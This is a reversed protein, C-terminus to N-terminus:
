EELAGKAILDDIEADGLGLLDRAIERTHEGLAPAPGAIPDGMSPTLMAPGELILEGLGPQTVPQPFRRAISHPNHVHDSPYCMVGAPVGAAQLTEMVAYDSRTATWASLHEDITDHAARRGEVTDYAPDAAWEPNGLAGKLAAWDADDRVSIVAWRESGECRYVGIPAGRQRRNGEPQVSGPELAEGIFKDGLLNIIAEVQAVEVHSGQGSTDRGLLAALAGVTLIRGVVHDPHIALSGPPMGGGPFNWLHSMGSAPRTNPGYGIWTSWPGKSGMLQSSAMVLRPNIQRLTEWDMGMDAMTGTSTNEILVDAWEVLRRLLALGEPVKANIGLSRKCRSSSVFSPSTMTGSVMRIFDPYTKTEVKIVDAGYEALLRGTEVGVGGHGLDLVKLGAFPLAPDVATSPAPSAAPLGDHEGPLPARRRYGARQGDIEFFGSAVPGSVGSTLEDRVFTGREVFHPLSTIQEPRLVPTMVIGRRQAEDALEYADRDKFLEIYMPDLVDAQISMRNPLSDWHDDRLVEPDGLWERMARWQRPSLIILRVYGDRTPYMPYVPGSGARFEYYFGGTNTLFSYNPIAWDTIQAVAQMVSVDLVQGAGTSRRQWLAALTAFASTVSSADYALSGPALLPPRELVGSRALMGGMGVLVEDTGVYDRYPGTLGFDTISSLVLRGHRATVADPGLDLHDLSGPRASSVWVDAAGLLGEFTARDGPDELDLEVSSKNTNRHAWWLSTGDPGLPALRRAPSGGRPEVKFVEAGLDALLRACLEGREITSDIVRVGALPAPGQVTM